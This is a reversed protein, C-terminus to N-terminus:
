SPSIRETDNISSPFVGSPDVGYEVLLGLVEEPNEKNNALWDFVSGRNKRAQRFRFGGELYWRLSEVDGLFGADLFGEATWSMGRDAIQEKPNRQQMRSLIETAVESSTRTNEETKETSKAIEKTADLIDASTEAITELKERALGLDQQMSVALDYNAALYGGAEKHERSLGYSVFLCVSSIILFAAIPAFWFDPYHRNMVRDAPSVWVCMGIVLVVCLAIALYLSIPGLYVLLDSTLAALGTIGMTVPGGVGAM